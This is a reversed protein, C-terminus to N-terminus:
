PMNYSHTVSFSTGICSNAIFASLGTGTSSSGKCAIASNAFLGTGSSSLGKSSSAVDCALGVSTDSQGYCNNATTAAIGFASSSFGYCNELSTGYVGNGSTSYGKCNQAAYAYVGSGNGSSGSCNQATFTDLGSGGTSVGNCNIATAVDVGIGSDSSGFANQASSALIGDGSGNCQGQSDSVQNAVIAASGGCDTAVSDKVTSAVVGAGGVTRVACSEVISTLDSFSSVKIGDYLCGSVTVGIVRVNRPSGSSYIGYGFGSGNYSGGSNVVNGVIHGNLIAINDFSGFIPVDIRIGAGTNSPDFSRITFGNLDITVNKASVFIGDGSGLDFSGTLYYSGPQTITIPLSSIPTRPELQDLSKMTPAPAGPPTLSGQARATSLEANLTSLLLALAALKLQAKM